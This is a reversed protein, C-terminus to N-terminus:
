LSPVERLVDDEKWESGGIIRARTLLFQFFERVDEKPYDEDEQDEIAKVLYHCYLLLEAAHRLTEGRQKIGAEARAISGNQYALAEDFLVLPIAEWDRGADVMYTQYVPGRKHLPVAIAVRSLRTNKTVPVLWCDGDLFYFARHSPRSM